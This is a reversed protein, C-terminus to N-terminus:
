KISYLKYLYTSQYPSSFSIIDSPSFLSWSIAASVLFRKAHCSAIAEASFLISTISLIVCRILFDLCPVSKSSSVSSCRAHYRTFITHTLSKFVCLTMLLAMHSYFLSKDGTVKCLNQDIVLATYSNYLRPYM